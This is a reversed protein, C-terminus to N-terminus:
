SGSVTLEPLTPVHQCTSSDEGRKGRDGQQRGRLGRGQALRVLFSLATMDQQDADISEVGRVKLLPDRLM